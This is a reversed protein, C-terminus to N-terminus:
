YWQTGQYRRRRLLLMPLLAVVAAPAPTGCGCGGPAIGPSPTVPADTDGVEVASDGTDEPLDVLEDLEFDWIGRGYTGFRILGEAEVAHASWYITIPAVDSTIDVWEDMDPSRMYAATETGAFVRGSDDPAEALSYVHTYPLGEDWAEWNRGGDVSRYVEHANYGSGGLYVVDTDLRSPLLAHGYLYQSYNLTASREWTLGGDESRFARGYNTAAWALDSDLPSFAIASLHERGGQNDFKQDSFREATWGNSGLTYRWLRDGCFFFATNDNPDGVVPPLWARNNDNDPFSAYSLFPNDDGVQVLIIGPYVSYLYQHSGDGSTLHAYDGSILQDFDLLENESDSWQYGQDQAGAAINGTATSTHVTYYQSVRLGELSLNWVTDLQDQSRYLGGDTSIYWLEQGDADVVVDIGMIDAHLRDEPREYYAGWSNMKRFENGDSTRYFEVGGYAAVDVNTISAQLEGWYDSMTTVSTFTAGDDSSYLRNGGHAIWIRGAESIALEARSGGFGLESVVSWSEGADTSHLLQDDDVVYLGEYYGEVRPVWMDGSYDALERVRDFTEGGDTSRFLSYETPWDEGAMVYITEDQAVLMRKITWFGDLGTSATWTEGDDDTYHLYASGNVAFVRNPSTATRPDLVALWHAGGYLNDGIAEWNSGDLDAKWVGGLASGAYLGSGDLAHAASHMRGAQNQSGREVWVGDEPGRPGSALLRRKDMQALGNAAEIQKYDVGEATKHFSKIWEKRAKKNKKEVDEALWHETPPPPPLEAISPPEPKEPQLGVALAGLAALLAPIWLRRM